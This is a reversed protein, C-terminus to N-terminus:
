DHVDSFASISNVISNFCAGGHRASINPNILCVIKMLAQHFTVKAEFTFIRLNKAGLAM